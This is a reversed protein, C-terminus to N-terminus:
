YKKKADNSSPYHLEYRAGLNLPLRFIPASPAKSAKFFFKSFMKSESQM